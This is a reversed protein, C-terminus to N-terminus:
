PESGATVKSVSDPELARDEGRTRGGPRPLRLGGQSRLPLRSLLGQPRALVVIVLLLGLLWFRDLTAVRLLEEGVIILFAGAVAGWATSMGGIIIFMLLRIESPFSLDAPLVLGLFQVLLGGALGAIGGGVAFGWIKMRAISIGLSEAAVPDAGAALVGLGTRSARLRTIAALLLVLILAVVPLTTRLPVGTYGQAGGPFFTRAAISLGEGIALTAIGFFLGSLRLLLASILAALLGATLAAFLLSPVLGLGLQKAAFGAAYAGIGLLAGHMVSFQGTGLSIRLGIAAIAFISAITLVSEWYLSM